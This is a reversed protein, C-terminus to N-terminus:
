GEHDYLVGPNYWLYDGVSIPPRVPEGDSTVPHAVAFAVIEHTVWMIVAVGAVEFLSLEGMM